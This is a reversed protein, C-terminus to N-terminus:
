HCERSSLEKRWEAPYDPHGALAEALCELRNIAVEVVEAYAARGADDLNAPIQIPDGSIWYAHAFPMPILYSDWSKTFLL